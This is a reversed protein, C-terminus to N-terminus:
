EARMIKWMEQKIIENQEDPLWKRFTNSNILVALLQEKVKNVEDVRNQGVLSQAVELSANLSVILNTASELANESTSM